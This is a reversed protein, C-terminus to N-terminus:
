TEKHSKLLPRYSLSRDQGRARIDETSFEEALASVSLSVPHSPSSLTPPPTSSETGTSTIQTVSANSCPTPSTNFAEISPLPFQWEGLLSAPLHQQKLFYVAKVVERPPPTDPDILENPYQRKLELVYDSLGDQEDWPKTDEYLIKMVADLTLGLVIAVPYYSSSYMGECEDRIEEM